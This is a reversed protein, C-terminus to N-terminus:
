ELNQPFNLLYSRFSLCIQRTLPGGGTGGFCVGPTPPDFNFNSVLSTANIATKAAKYVV